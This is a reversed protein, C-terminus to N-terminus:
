WNPPDSPWCEWPEPKLGNKHIRLHASHTVALLNSLSNNLRDRDIHHVDIKPNLRAVGDIVVLFPHSPNERLIADAVVLRHSYTERKKTEGWSDETMYGHRIVQAGAFRQSKEARQLKSTALRYEPDQGKCSQSCYRATDARSPPVRFETECTKCVKFVPARKAKNPLPQAPQAKKRCEVSCFRRSNGVIQSLWTDFEKGCCECVRTLRKGLHAKRCEKNCFKQVDARYPKVVFEKNCEVCQLSVTM